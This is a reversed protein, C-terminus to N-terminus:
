AAVAAGSLWTVAGATVRSEAEDLGSDGYESSLGCIIFSLPLNIRKADESFRQPALLM